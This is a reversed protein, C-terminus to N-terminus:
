GGEVEGGEGRQEGERRRIGATGRGVERGKEGAGGWGQGEKTGERLGKGGAEGSGGGREGEGARWRAGAGRARRAAAPLTHRAEGRAPRAGPLAGVWTPRKASREPGTHPGLATRRADTPAAPARAVAAACSQGGRGGEGRPGEDGGWRPVLAGHGRVSQGGLQRELRLNVGHLAVVDALGAETRAARPHAIAILARAPFPTSPSSPPFPRPVLAPRATGGGGKGRPGRASTREEGARDGM